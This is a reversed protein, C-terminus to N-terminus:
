RQDIQANIIQQGQALVDEVAMEGSLAFRLLKWMTGKYVAYAPDPPIPTGIETSRLLVEAHRNRRPLLQWARKDAPMKALAVPFRQQVGIGSLYQILRRALIPRRSKRPIALAKVDLVPSVPRGTDTNMPFPAVGFDLELDTFLPISYSGSLIMGIKGSAFLAIMADRELVQMLGQDRLRLIYALARRTPADDITLKGGADILTQKGFGLQFPILWYASYANWALPILGKSKLRSCILELDQLDWELSPREPVLLRNIFVLQTDFYFPVGWLRDALLFAERGFLHAKGPMMYDVNQLARARVLTPLSESQIMVVDPVTGGGRVVAILKTGTKPVETTKVTLGYRRAFTQIEQKLDRTGEWSVWVELDKQDLLDGWMDLRAVDAVTEGEAELAWGADTRFLFWDPLREAISGTKSLVRIDASRAEFRYAEAFLPLM